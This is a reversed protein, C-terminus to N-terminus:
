QGWVRRDWINRAHRATMGGLARDGDIIAGLEMLKANRWDHLFQSHEATGDRRSPSAPFRRQAFTMNIQFIFEIYRSGILGFLASRFGAEIAVIDSFSATPSLDGVVDSYQQALTRIEPNSMGAAKVIVEVWLASAVRSLDDPDVNLLELYTSVGEEITEATPRTGFYGGNIGRRVRLLGERELLRAAQRVTARSVGLTGQLHDESGLFDGDAADLVITRLRAAASHIASSTRATTV